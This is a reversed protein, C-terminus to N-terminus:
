ISFFFGWMAGDVIPAINSSQSSSAYALIVTPTSTRSTWTRTSVLITHTPTRTSMTHTSTRSAWARLTRAKAVRTPTITFVIGTIKPSHATTRTDTVLKSPPQPTTMTSQSITSIPTTVPGSSSSCSAYLTSTQNVLTIISTLILPLTVTSVTGTITDAGRTKSFCCPFAGCSRSSLVGLASVSDTSCEGDPQTQLTLTFATITTASTVFPIVTLTPTSNCSAAMFNHASATLLVM